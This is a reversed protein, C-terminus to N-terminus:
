RRTALREIASVLRVTAEPGQRLFLSPEVLELEMLMPAGAADRALDVRAYLLDPSLTRVLAEAFAREDSQIPVSDVREEGGAFRPSKRVAHSCIGDVFVLSREGYDDVSAVYPQVMVDREACCRALVGEKAEERGFAYTEFSGASVRPKVVVRDWGRADMLAALSSTAGRGIFETPVVRIGRQELDRLYIKDTNWRITAADNVLKTKAGVAEAWAHFADLRHLYNWTSRVVVLAYAGFDVSEDDWAVMAADLGRARVADLLVPEDPDPEPMTLCTVLAVATMLGNM